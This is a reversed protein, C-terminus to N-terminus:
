LIIDSLTIYTWFLKKLLTSPVSLTILKVGFCFHYWESGVKVINEGSYFEGKTDVVEMLGDSIEKLIGCDCESTRTQAAPGKAERLMIIRTIEANIKSRVALLEKGIEQLKEPTASNPEILKLLVSMVDMRILTL